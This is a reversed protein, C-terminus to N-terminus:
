EHEPRPICQNKTFILGAMTTPDLNEPGRTAQFEWPDQFGQCRGNQNVREKKRRKKYVNFEITLNLFNYIIM